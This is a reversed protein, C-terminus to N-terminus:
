MERRLSDSSIGQVVLVSVPVSSTPLHPLSVIPIVPVETPGSIVPVFNRVEAQLPETIEVFEEEAEQVEPTKWFEMEKQIHEINDGLNEIGIMLNQLLETNDEASKQQKRINESLLDM